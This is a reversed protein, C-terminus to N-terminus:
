SQNPSNLKDNVITRLNYISEMVFLEDIKDIDIVRNIATQIVKISEKIRRIHNHLNANKFDTDLYEQHEMELLSTLAYMMRYSEAVKVVREETLERRRM